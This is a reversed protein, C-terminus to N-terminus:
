CGPSFRRRSPVGPVAVQQGDPFSAWPSPPNADLAGANGYVPGYDSEYSVTGSTLGPALATDFTWTIGSSTVAISTAGAASSPVYYLATDFGVNFSVVPEPTSSGAPTVDDAPNSVTYDYTYVGSGFTVMWNVTLVEPGSTDGYSDGLISSYGQGLVIQAHAPQCLGGLLLVSGLAMILKNKKM